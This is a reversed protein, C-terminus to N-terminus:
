NKPYFINLSLLGLTFYSSKNYQVQLGDTTDEDFNANILNGNYLYKIQAESMNGIVIVIFCFLTLLYTKM